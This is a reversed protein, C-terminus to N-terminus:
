SLITEEGGTRILNIFLFIGGLVSVILVLTPLNLLLFNSATFATLGGAYIGSNLLSEYANSIQPALIVALLCLLVYAFFWIPNRKMLANTIIISVALCLIYVLAVMRLAQISTNLQGFINDSAQTMNVYLTANPNADNIVGVDHMVNNILGMAYILGGFFVVVLFAVIMFYFMNMETMQAKKNRKIEAKKLIDLLPEFRFAGKFLDKYPLKDDDLGSRLRIRRIDDCTTKLEKDLKVHWESNREEERKKFDVM